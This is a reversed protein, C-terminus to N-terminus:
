RSYACEAELRQFTKQEKKGKYIEKVTTLKM